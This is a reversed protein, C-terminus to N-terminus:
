MRSTLYKYSDNRHLLPYTYKLILHKAPGPLEVRCADRGIPHEEEETQGIMAKWLALEILTTTEKIEYYRSLDVVKKMSQLRNAQPLPVILYGDRM